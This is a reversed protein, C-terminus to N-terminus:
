CSIIYNCNIQFPANMILDKYKKVIKVQKIEMLNNQIFLPCKVYQFSLVGWLYSDTYLLQNIIVECGLKQLHALCKEKSALSADLSNAVSIFDKDGGFELDLVSCPINNVYGKVSKCKKTHEEFIISFLSTGNIVNPNSSHVKALIARDCQLEVLSQKLWYSLM